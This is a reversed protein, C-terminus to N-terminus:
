ADSDHHGRREAADKSGATGKTETPNSSAADATRLSPRVVHTWRVIADERQGPRRGARDATDELTGGAKGLEVAHVALARSAERAFREHPPREVMKTDLHPDALGIEQADRLFSGKQHDRVM